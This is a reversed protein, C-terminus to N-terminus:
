LEMMELVVRCKNETFFFFKKRDKRLVGNRCGEVDGLGEFWLCVSM